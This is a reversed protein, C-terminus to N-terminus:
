STQRILLCSTHLSHADSSVTIPIHALSHSKMYSVFCAEIISSWLYAGMLERNERLNEQNQTKKTNVLAVTRSQTGEVGDVEPTTYLLMQM